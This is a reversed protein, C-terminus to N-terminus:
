KELRDVARVVIQIQRMYSDLLPLPEIERPKIHKERLDLLLNFPSAEFGFHGAAANIVQRKGFPAEGGSLRLAHRFLVCFTSVSDALMVRLQNKDDLAGAAKQRLRLLKSRLEYEVQARYFSDHIEVDKVPDEGYLVRRREQIDHFEIAFCDASNRVEERSLLLPSPNGQERWWHMIPNSEALERPTVEHLVCLINYDSFHDEPAGAAASGYLVVSELRGGFTKTLRELLQELVREM